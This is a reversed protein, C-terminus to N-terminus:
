RGCVVIEEVETKKVEGDVKKYIVVREGCGHENGPECAAFQGHSGSYWVLEDRDPVRGSFYMSELIKEDVFSPPESLRNWSDQQDLRQCGALPNACATLLVLVSSAFILRLM